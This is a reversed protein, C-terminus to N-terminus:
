LLDLRSKRFFLVKKKAVLGVRSATLFFVVHDDSCFECGDGEEGDEVLRRAL